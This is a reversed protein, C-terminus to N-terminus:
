RERGRDLDGDDRSIAEMPIGVLRNRADHRPIDELAPRM